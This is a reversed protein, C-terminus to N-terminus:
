EIEDFSGEVFVHPPFRWSSSGIEWYIIRGWAIDFVQRGKVPGITTIQWHIRYDIMENETRQFAYGFNIPRLNDLRLLYVSKPAITISDFPDYYYHPTLSDMLLYFKSSNEDLVDEVWVVVNSVIIDSTGTNSFAIEAYLKNSSVGESKPATYAAEDILDVHLRTFSSRGKLFYIEIKEEVHFNSYYLSIGSISVAILSLVVTFFGLHIKVWAILKSKNTVIATSSGSPIGSKKGAQSCEHKDAM